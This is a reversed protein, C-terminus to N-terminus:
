ETFAMLPDVSLWALDRNPQLVGAPHDVPDAASGSM